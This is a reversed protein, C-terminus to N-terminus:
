IGPDFGEPETRSILTALTLGGLCATIAERLENMVVRLGCTGASDCADCSRVMSQSTCAPSTMPGDFLRIVTGVKVSEPAHDLYYGGGKGKRSHVIGENKLALLIAELFKRPINEASAIDAILTPRRSKERALHLLAKLAYKSRMSFM